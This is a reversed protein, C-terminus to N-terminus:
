AQIRRALEDAIVKAQLPGLKAVIADAVKEAPVGGSQAATLLAALNKTDRDQTSEIDQLFQGATATKPGGDNQLPHGWVAKAIADLDKPDIAMLEEQTPNTAPKSTTTYIPMGYSRIGIAGQARLRPRKRLCVEYGERAGVDNSNGEITHVHTDTVKWVVGTHAPRQLSPFYVYFVSGVHPTTSLRGARKYASENLACSATGAGPPLILGVKKAIGVQFTACWALGPAHGAMAAYKTRNSGMPSERYGEEAKLAALYVAATTV